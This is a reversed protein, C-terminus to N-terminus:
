ITNIGKGVTNHTKLHCYLVNKECFGKSCISCIFPRPRETEHLKNHWLMLATMGLLRPCKSCKRMTRDAHAELHHLLESTSNYSNSCYECSVTQEGYCLHENDEKPTLYEDCVQCRKNRAAVHKNLHGKMRRLTPIEIKCIYCEFQDNQYDIKQVNIQKTRTKM